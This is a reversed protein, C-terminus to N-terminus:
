IFRVEEEVADRDKYRAIVVMVAMSVTIYAGVMKMTPSIGLDNAGDKLGLPAAKSSSWRALLTSRGASSSTPVASVRSAHATRNSISGPRVAVRSASRAAVLLRVGNMLM